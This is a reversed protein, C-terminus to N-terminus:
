QRQGLARDKARIAYGAQKPWSTYAFENDDLVHHAHVAWNPDELAARALSVLDAKGEALIAEAQMPETILGVAMTAIDAGERVTQSLPVQYLAHPNFTAGAFGGSSCHVVDVGRAKLERSLVVSDDVTWGDPHNDSASIRVFLPKDDPWAARVNETIELL